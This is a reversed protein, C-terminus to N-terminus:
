SLSHSCRCRFISSVGKNFREALFRLSNNLGDHADSDRIPQITAAATEPESLQDSILCWHDFGHSKLEALLYSGVPTIIGPDVFGEPAGIM